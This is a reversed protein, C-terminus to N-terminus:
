IYWSDVLAVDTTYISLMQSRTTPSDVISIFDAYEYYTSGNVGGKIIWHEDFATKACRSTELSQYEVELATDGLTYYQDGPKNEVASFVPDCHYFSVITQITISNTYYDSPQSEAM